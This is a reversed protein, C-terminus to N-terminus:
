RLAMSRQTRMMARPIAPNKLVHRRKCAQVVKWLEVTVAVMDGPHDALRQGLQEAVVRGLDVRTSLIQERQRDREALAQLHGVDEFIHPVVPAAANAPQRPVHKTRGPQFQTGQGGLPGIGPECRAHNLEHRDGAAVESARQRNVRSMGARSVPMRRNQRHATPIATSLKRRM